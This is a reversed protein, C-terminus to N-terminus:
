DGAKGAEELYERPFQIKEQDMDLILKKPVWNTFDRAEDRLKMQEETMVFDFM